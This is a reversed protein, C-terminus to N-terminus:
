IVGGEYFLYPQFGSINVDAMVFNKNLSAGFTSVCMLKEQFVLM